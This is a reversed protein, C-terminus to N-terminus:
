RVQTGDYCLYVSCFSYTDKLLGVPFVPERSRNMVQICTRFYLRAHWSYTTLHSLFAHSVIADIAAHEWQSKVGNM